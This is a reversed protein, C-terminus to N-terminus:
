PCMTRARSPNCGSTPCSTRQTSRSQTEPSTRSARLRKPAVSFSRMGSRSSTVPMQWCSAIERAPTISKLVANWGCHPPVHGARLEGDARGSGSGAHLPWVRRHLLYAHWFLVSFADAHLEGSQALRRFVSRDLLQLSGHSNGPPGFHRSRHHCVAM